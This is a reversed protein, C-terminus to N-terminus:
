YNLTIRINKLIGWKTYSLIKEHIMQSRAVLQSTISFSWAINSLSTLTVINFQKLHVTSTRLFVLFYSSQNWISTMARSKFQETSRYPCTFHLGPVVSNSRYFEKSYNGQIHACPWSFPPRPGLIISSMKKGKLDVSTHFLPCGM